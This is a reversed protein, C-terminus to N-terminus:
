QPSHRGSMSSFTSRGRQAEVPITIHNQETQERVHIAFTETAYATAM